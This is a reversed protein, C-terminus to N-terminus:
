VELPNVSIRSTGTETAIIKAGGMPDAYPLRVANPFAHRYGPDTDRTAFDAAQRASAADPRMHIELMVESLDNECAYTTEGEDIDTDTLAKDLTPSMLAAELDSRDLLLCANHSEPAKSPKPDSHVATASPSSSAATTVSPQPTEGKKVVGLTAKKREGLVSGGVPDQSTVIWNSDVMAHRGNGTDDVVHTKLQLDDLQDRADSLSAGVVNPMVADAERRPSNASYVVASVLAVCVTGLGIVIRTDRKMGNGEISNDM